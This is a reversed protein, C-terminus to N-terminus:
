WGKATDRHWAVEPYALLGLVNLYLLRWIILVKYILESFTAKNTKRNKLKHKQYFLARTIARLKMIASSM